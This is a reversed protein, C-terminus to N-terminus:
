PTGFYTRQSNELASRNGAQYSPWAVVESISGQFWNDVANSSNNSRAGLVARHLANAGSMFNAVGGSGSAYSVSLSLSTRNVYLSHAPTAPAIMYHIMELASTNSDAGIYGIYNGNSSAGLGAGMNTTRRELIFGYTFDFQGSRNLMLIGEAGESTRRSRAVAAVSLNRTAYAVDTAFATALNSTTGDFVLTPKGNEMEVAGANVIRPQSSGTAQTADLGNGSQDYFTKVYGSGSGCFSLLAATDLEGVAFGIDQEANDSARRVRMCNGSYASRLQRVSFALGAGVVTDLLLAAGGGSGSGVLAAFEALLPNM